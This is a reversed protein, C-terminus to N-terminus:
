ESKLCDLNVLACDTEGIKTKATFFVPIRRSDASVYADLESAGMIKTILESFLKVSFVDICEGNRLKMLYVDGVTMKVQWIKGGYLIGFDYAKGSELGKIRFYYLFSLLDHTTDEIKVEKKPKNNYECQATKKDRNFIITEETIKNKFNKKKYSKLSLGSDKDIYTEVQYKINYFFSFFSNPGANATMYYCDKGGVEEIGKTELILSASPIGRWSVSYRLKERSPFRSPEKAIFCQSEKPICKTVIRPRYACATASIIIILFFYKGYQATLKM